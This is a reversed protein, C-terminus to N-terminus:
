QLQLLPNLMRQASTVHQKQEKEIESHCHHSMSHPCILPCNVSLGEPIDSVHPRKAPLHRLFAYTTTGIGAPFRGM